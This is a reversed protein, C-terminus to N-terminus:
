VELMLGYDTVKFYKAIGASAETVKTIDHLTM